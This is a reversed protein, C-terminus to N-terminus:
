ILVLFLWLFRLNVIFFDDTVVLLFGVVAFAAFYFSLPSSALALALKELHSGFLEQFAVQVFKKVKVFVPAVHTLFTELCPLLKNRVLIWLM